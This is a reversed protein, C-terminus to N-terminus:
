QLTNLFWLFLFAIPAAFLVSDIMDLVGGFGPLWESSDKVKAERKLLSEALDGFLGTLGLMAAFLIVAGITMTEKTTPAPDHNMRCLMYTGAILTPTLVAGVAGEMSKKPSLIPSMPHKPLGDARKRGLTRGVFYAGIDGSKVLLIMSGLMIIGMGPTVVILTAFSLLVPVYFLSFVGGIIERLTTGDSEPGPYRKMQALMVAIAGLTFAAFVAALGEAALSFSTVNWTGERGSVCCIGTWVALLIPLMPAFLIVTSFFYVTRVPPHAGIRRMLQITEQVGSLGAALLIPLLWVGPITVPLTYDKRPLEMRLPHTMDLWCIAVIFLIVVPGLIYRWVNSTREPLPM